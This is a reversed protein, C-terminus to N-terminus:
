KVSVKFVAKKVTCPTDETMIAPAHADDPFVIAMEGRGLRIKDYKDNFAYFTCDKEPIYDGTPTLEDPTEFCFFEEGKLILQIDAYNKHTEFITDSTKKTEYEIVSVFLKDGCLEYKGVEPENELFEKIKLFAKDFYPNLKAYIKLEPSNINTIIM